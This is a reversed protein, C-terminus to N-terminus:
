TPRWAASRRRCTTLRRWTRTPSRSAISSCHSRSAPIQPGGAVYIGGKLGLELQSPYTRKDQKRRFTKYKYPSDAIFMSDWNSENM